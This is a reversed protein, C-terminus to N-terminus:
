NSSFNNWLEQFRAKIIISNDSSPSVGVDQYNYDKICSQLHLDPHLRIEAYNICTPKDQTFCPSDVYTVTVFNTGVTPLKWKISGNMLNIEEFLISRLVNIVYEKVTQNTPDNLDPLIKVPVEYQKAWNIIKYIDHQNTGSVVHNLGFPIGYEKCLDLAAMSKTMNGNITVIRYEVSDTSPFQVNLKVRTKSLIRILDLNLLSANTACGIEFNTTRDVYSIMDTLAQNLFPEGGSFQVEKLETDRLSDIIVELEKYKLFVPKTDIGKGQGENHCFSCQYNCQNTVLVRLRKWFTM